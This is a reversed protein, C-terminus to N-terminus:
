CSFIKSDIYDDAQNYSAQAEMKKSQVLPPTALSGIEVQLRVIERWASAGEDTSLEEIEVKYAELSQIDALISADKAALIAINAQVAEREDDVDCISQKGDLDDDYDEWLAKEARVIEVMEEYLAISADINAVMDEKANEFPAGISTQYAQCAALADSSLGSCPNANTNVFDAGRNDNRSLGRLGEVGTRVLRNFLANAIAGAYESLQDANVIFDFDIGVADKVLDGVVSGPTTITCKVDGPIGDGDIDPGTGGEEQCSKTGIFGDGARADELATFQAASIRRHKEEELLIYSGFINNQPEWAAQYAVWSGNEFDAYFNEINGVIDDLTCRAQNQFRSEPALAIRLQASFPSCLFGLGIEQALDGVAQSAIDDLFASWDTVFRPEDGGNIWQIIDDVMMDLLRKKLTELIFSQAWEFSQQTTEATTAAAITAISGDISPLSSIFDLHGGVVHVTLAQAKQPKLTLSLPALTAVVLLTATLKKLTEFNM